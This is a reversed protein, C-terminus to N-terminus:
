GSAKLGKRAVNSNTSSERMSVVCRIKQRSRFAGNRIAGLSELSPKALTVSPDLGIFPKRWGATPLVLPQYMQNPSCGELAGSKKM